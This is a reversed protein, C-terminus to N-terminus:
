LGNEKRDTLIGVPTMTNVLVIATFDFDKTSRDDIM